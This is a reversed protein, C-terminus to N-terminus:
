KINATKAIDNYNVAKEDGKALLYAILVKNLADLDMKQLIVEQPESM